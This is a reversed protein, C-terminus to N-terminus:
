ARRGATVGAVLSQRHEGPSGVQMQAGLGGHLLFAGHAVCQRQEAGGARRIQDQLREIGAVPQKGGIVRCAQLLATVPQSSQTGAQVRQSGCLARGQRQCQVTGGPFGHLQRQVCRRQAQGPLCQGVTQPLVSHLAFIGVGAVKHQHEGRFVRCLVHGPQFRSQCFETCPADGRCFGRGLM